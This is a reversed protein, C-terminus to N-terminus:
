KLREVLQRYLDESIYRGTARMIDLCNLIEERKILNKKYSEFLIGLTGMVNIGMQKAVFRGKAEDMLLLDAKKEDTCIIAESEGRDLGTARQLSIISDKREAYVKHIFECNKIIEAEDFFRPNETLEEYVAEPILVNGFLEQLLDIKDIKVLSIIPTTDSVVIM